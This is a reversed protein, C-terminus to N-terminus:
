GHLVALLASDTALLEATMPLNNTLWIDNRLRIRELEVSPDGVVAFCLLKRYCVDPSRKATQWVM